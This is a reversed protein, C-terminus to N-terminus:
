KFRTAEDQILQFYKSGGPTVLGVYCVDPMLHKYYETSRKGEHRKYAMRKAKAEQCAICKLPSKFDKVTLRIGDVMNAHMMKKLAQVNMHAFQMHWLM